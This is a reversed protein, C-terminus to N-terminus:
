IDRCSTVFCRCRPKLCFPSAHKARCHWGVIAKWRASLADENFKIDQAINGQVLAVSIPEGDPQTWAITHLLAGAGLYARHANITPAPWAAVLKIAPM